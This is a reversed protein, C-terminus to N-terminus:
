GRLATLAAQDEGCEQVAGVTTGTYQALAMCARNYEAAIDMWPRGGAPGGTKEFGLKRAYQMAGHSGMVEGILDTEFRHRAHEAIVSTRRGATVAEFTSLLGDYYRRASRLTYRGASDDLLGPVASEAERMLRAAERLWAGFGDAERGGLPENVRKDGTYEVYLAM